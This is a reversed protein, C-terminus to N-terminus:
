QSVLSEQRQYKLFPPTIFVIARGSRDRVPLTQFHGNRLTEVDQADLTDLSIDQCLKQPGFLDMKVKLYGVLRDAARPADYDESRLFMLLFKRNYIYNRNRQVAVDFAVRSNEGSQGPANKKEREKELRYLYHKMEELGISVKESNELETFDEMNRVGHLDSLIKECEEFRLQNLETSFAERLGVDQIVQLAKEREKMSLKKLEEALNADVQNKADRTNNNSRFLICGGSSIPQALNMTVIIYLRPLLEPVPCNM